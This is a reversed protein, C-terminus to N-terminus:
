IKSPTCFRKPKKSSVNKKYDCFKGYARCNLSKHGFNNCSYFHSFFIQQYRSKIPRRPIVNTRYKDDSSLTCKKIKEKQIPSKLAAVYIRKNRGQNTLSSCTSKKEKDYGLGSKDRSPRQSSLIDDLTKSSNEFKSKIFGEDFKKRLHM